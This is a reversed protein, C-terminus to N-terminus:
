AVHRAICCNLAQGAVIRVSVQEETPWPPAHPRRPAKAPPPGFVLEQCCLPSNRVPGDRALYASGQAERFRAVDLLGRPRRAHQRILNINDSYNIVGGWGLEAHEDCTGVRPSVHSINTPRGKPIMCGAGAHMIGLTYTPSIQCGVHAGAGASNGCDEHMCPM